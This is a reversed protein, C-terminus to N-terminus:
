CEEGGWQLGGEGPSALVPAAYKARESSGFGHCYVQDESGDFDSRVGRGGLACQPLGVPVSSAWLGVAGGAGSLLWEPLVSAGSQYCLDEAYVGSQYLFTEM